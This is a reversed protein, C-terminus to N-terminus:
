LFATISCEKLSNLDKEFVDVFLKNVGHKGLNASLSLESNAMSFISPFSVAAINNIVRLFCLELLFTYWLM